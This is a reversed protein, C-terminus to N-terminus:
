LIPLELEQQSASCVPSDAAVMSARLRPQPYPTILTLLYKKAVTTLSKAHDCFQVFDFSVNSFCIIM